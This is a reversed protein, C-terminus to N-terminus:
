GLCNKSFSQVDIPMLSITWLRLEVQHLEDNQYLDPKGNEDKYSYIVNYKGNRERISAM